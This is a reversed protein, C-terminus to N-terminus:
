FNNKYMRLLTLVLIGRSFPNNRRELGYEALNINKEIFNAMNIKIEHRIDFLKDYTQYEGKEYMLEGVAYLNFYAEFMAVLEHYEPSTMISWYFIKLNRSYKEM